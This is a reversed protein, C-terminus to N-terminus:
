HAKVHDEIMELEEERSPRTFRPEDVPITVWPSKCKEGEHCPCLPHSKHWYFNLSEAHANHNIQIARIGDQLLKIKKDSEEEKAELHDIRESLGTVVEIIMCHPCQMPGDGCDCQMKLYTKAAGVTLM